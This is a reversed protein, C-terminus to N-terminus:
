RFFHYIDLWTNGRKMSSALSSICSGCRVRIAHRIPIAWFNWYDFKEFLLHGQFDSLVGKAAPLVLYFPQHLIHILPLHRTVYAAKSILQPSNSYWTWLHYTSWSLLWQQHKQLTVLVKEPIKSTACDPFPHVNSGTPSQWLTEM